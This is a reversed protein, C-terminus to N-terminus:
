FWTALWWTLPIWCIEIWIVDIKNNYPPGATIDIAGIPTLGRRMVCIPIRNGGPVGPGPVDPCMLDGTLNGPGTPAVYRIHSILRHQQICIELGPADFWAIFISMRTNAVNPVNSRSNSMKWWLISTKRLFIIRQSSSDSFRSIDKM